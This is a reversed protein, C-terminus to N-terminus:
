GELSSLIIRDAAAHMSTLTFIAGAYSGKTDFRLVAACLQLLINTELQPAVDRCSGEIPNLELKSGRQHRQHERAKAVPAGIRLGPYQALTVLEAALKARRTINQAILEDQHMTGAEIGEFNPLLGIRLLEGLKDRSVADHILRGAVTLWRSRPPPKPM